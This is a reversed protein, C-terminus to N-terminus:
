NGISIIYHYLSKNLIGCMIGPILKCVILQISALHMHHINKDRFVESMRTHSELVPNKLENLISFQRRVNM